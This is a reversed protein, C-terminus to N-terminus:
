SGGSGHRGVNGAMRDLTRRAAIRMLQSHSLLLSMRRDVRLVMMRMKRVMVGLVLMRILRM